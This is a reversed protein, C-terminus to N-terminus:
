APKHAKHLKKAAHKKAAKKVHKGSRKVTTKVSAKGGDPRAAFTSGAGVVSVALVAVTFLKAFKM